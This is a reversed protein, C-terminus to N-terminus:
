TGPPRKILLGKMFESENHFRYVTEMEEPTCGLIIKLESDKKILDVTGIVAVVAPPALSGQWVDIGHGDMSTTDQLYGYDLPYVIHPFRPHTTGRPRDIIIRSAVVLDDVAKWFGPNHIVSKNCPQL